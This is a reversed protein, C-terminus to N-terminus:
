TRQDNARRRIWHNDGRQVLGTRGAHAANEAQTVYELNEPLPNKKNGDKHNIQMGLPRPGIFAEAVMVHVRETSPKGDICLNVIPYGTTAIFVTLDKGLRAGKGGIARRVRGTRTVEYFGRKVPRWEEETM